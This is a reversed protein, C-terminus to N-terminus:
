RLDIWNTGEMPVALFRKNIEAMTTAPDLSGFLEPHIWKALAEVALLDLPSNLLQHSLGHVDGRKVASLSGM